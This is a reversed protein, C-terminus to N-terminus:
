VEWGADRLLEDIEERAKEEPKLERDAMTM